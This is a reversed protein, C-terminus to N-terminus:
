RRDTNNKQKSVEFELQARTWTFIIFIVFWLLTQHLYSSSFSTYVLPFMFLMLLWEKKSDLTLFFAGIRFFTYFFVLLAAPVGFQLALDLAFNHPHLSQSWNDFVGYGLFPAGLIFEISQSYVVDRGSTGRSLTILEGSSGGIYAVARRFGSSLIPIDPVLAIVVGISLLFVAFKVLSFFVHSVNFNYLKFNWVLILISYMSLLVFGGRGGSAVVSLASSLLMLNNFCFFAFSRQFAFRHEKSARYTFFALVGFALASTYSLYQYNAGAFDVVALQNGILPFVVAVVVGLAILQASIESMKIVEILIGHALIIRAAFIGPLAFLVFFIFNEALLSTDDDLAVWFLHSLCIFILTVYFKVENKTISRIRFSHLFVLTSTVFISVIYYVYNNAEDAGLYRYGVIASVSFFLPRSFLSLVIFLSLFFRSLRDIGELTSTQEVVSSTLCIILM